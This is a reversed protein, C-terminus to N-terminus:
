NDSKHGSLEGSHPLCLRQNNEARPSARSIPCKRSPLHVIQRQPRFALRNTSDDNSPIGASTYQKYTYTLLRRQDFAEPRLQSVLRSGSRQNHRSPGLCNLTSRRLSAPHDWFGLPLIHTWVITHSFPTRLCAYVCPLAATTCNPQLYIRRRNKM